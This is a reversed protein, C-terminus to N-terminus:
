RYDGRLAKRLYRTERRGQIKRVLWKLGELLAAPSLVALAVLFVTTFAM